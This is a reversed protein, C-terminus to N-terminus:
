STTNEKSAKALSLFKYLDDASARNRPVKQLCMRLVSHMWPGWKLPLMKVASEIDVLGGRGASVDPYIGETAWFFVCIGLGWIDSRDTVAQGFLVEPPATHRFGWDARGNSYVCGAKRPNSLFWFDGLECVPKSAAAARTGWGTHMYNLTDKTEGGLRPDFSQLRILDLTSPGGNASQSQTSTDQISSSSKTDNSMMSLGFSENGLGWSAGTNENPTYITVCDPHINRHVIKARIHL